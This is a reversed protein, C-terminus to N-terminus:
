KEDERITLAMGDLAGPLPSSVILDGANLGQDIYIQEGFKRLINIKKIKLQQGVVTFLTDGPRILHRPLVFLNDITRGILLCKVFAGPKLGLVRDNEGQTRIEVVLPLTRTQEDIRAKLRAVQGEWEHEALGNPNALRIRARPLAAADSLSNLWRTKEIPISIEVDLQGNQYIVGLTQGITVYEGQEASKELVFGDFGARIRTRSFALDAKEYDLRAMALAAKKQAMVTDTLAMRNQLAQLQIKSQLVQQETQDLLTKSAFQNKTLASVRNFEKQALALSAKSLAIDARLNEIEQEYNEIDATSQTVRVQASDKELEYSEPDIAILLAGKEIRGGAVFAPHMQDIRGSVEASIKVSRRPAVTGYAEVTMVKSEPTAAVVEVSPPAQDVAQKEPAKKMSILFRALGLAVALVIIVRVARFLFPVPKAKGSVTQTM